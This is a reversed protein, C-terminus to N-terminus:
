MDVSEKSKVLDPFGGNISLMVKLEPNYKKLDIISNYTQFLFNLAIIYM